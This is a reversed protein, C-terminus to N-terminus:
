SPQCELVRMLATELSPLTKECFVPEDDGPVFAGNQKVPLTTIKFRNGLDEILCELLSANYLARTSRFGAFRLYSATLAKYDIPVPLVRQPAGLIQMVSAALPGPTIGRRALKLMPEGAIHGGTQTTHLCYLFIQNEAFVLSCGRTAKGLSDM